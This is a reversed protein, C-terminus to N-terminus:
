THTYDLVNTVEVVGIMPIIRLMLFPLEAPFDYNRQTKITHNRVTMQTKSNKILNASIIQVQNWGLDRM